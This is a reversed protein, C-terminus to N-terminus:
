GASTKNSPLAERERGGVIKADTIAKAFSAVPLFSCAFMKPGLGLPHIVADESRFLGFGYHLGMGSGIVHNYSPLGKELFYTDGSLRYAFTLAELTHLYGGPRSLSPVEKYYFRGDKSTCNEIIDRMSDVILQAVEEDPVVQIYRMLSSAALSIMFPVRAMTHSTYPALWAGYLRHWQKFQSVIRHVPRLWRPEGSERSLATLSRLAWGTERASSAGPENFEPKDLQRLLNEGIGIATTLAFDDGTVHYYDLLGEVWQHSPLVKGTAHNASHALQGQHRYRDPSYHCVDVDMWHEAAVKMYDFFRREGLSAYMLLSVHPLDYENNTWLIKGNEQHNATPFGSGGEPGDGWNLMGYGRTRTDALDTLYAVARTDSHELWCDELFVGAERYTAPHLTPLDPLQFQLSRADVESLTTSAEHFHLLLTHRKAVGQLFNIDDYEEPILGIEIGDSNVRLSKPFNQQAQFLTTSVGGSASNWDAWFTGYLTEPSQENGTNILYDHDILRYQERGNDDSKITSEYNSIALGTRIRGGGKPNLTLALSNLEISKSEERNIIRYDVRIWPKGAYLYLRVSFDFCAEGASSKHVGEAEVVGQIPGAEIVRWGGRGIETIFEDSARPVLTFGRIDNAALTCDAWEIREIFGRKGSPALKIKLLENQLTDASVQIATPPPPPIVGTELACLKAGNGPLDIQGHLLLWKVSGDSWTATVRTQTPLARGGDCISLSAIDSENLSGEKFPVGVTFPEAIRDYRSIKEFFLDTKM